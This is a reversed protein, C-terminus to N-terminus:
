INIIKTTKPKEQTMLLQRAGKVTLLCLLDQERKTKASKRQGEDEQGEVETTEGGEDEEGGENVMNRM